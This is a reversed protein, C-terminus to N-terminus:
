PYLLLCNKNVKSYQTIKGAQQWMLLQMLCKHLQFNPPEYQPPPSIHVQPLASCQPSASAVEEQGLSLSAADQVHGPLVRQLPCLVHPQSHQKRLLALLGAAVTQRACLDNCFTSVLVM